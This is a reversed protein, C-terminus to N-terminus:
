PQEFIDQLYNLLRWLTNCLMTCVTPHYIIAAEISSSHEISPTCSPFSLYRARLRFCSYLFDSTFFREPPVLFSSTGDYSNFNTCLFIRSVMRRGAKLLSGFHTIPPRNPMLLLSLASVCTLQSDIALNSKLSKKVEISLLFLTRRKESHGLSLLQLLLIILLGLLM